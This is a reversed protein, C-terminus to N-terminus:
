QDNDLVEVLLKMLRENIVYYQTKGCDYSFALAAATKGMGIREEELTTLWSLPISFSKAPTMKTKCEVLLNRTAVDGKVFPTAGSNPTKHGGLSKAVAREQRNSMERTNM